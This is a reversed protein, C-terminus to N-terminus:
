GWLSELTYDSGELCWFNGKIYRYDLNIVKLDQMQEESLVSDAADLNQKLREPNTSKPIAVTGRNVAWALMVQASSCGSEEAIKQIIENEFLKPENAVIRNAPRDASGLPSYATLIIGSQDCFNKLQEQQNFLHSEVQDVEPMVGTAKAIREIKSSSFNSVGIHRVLGKDRLKIMGEWTEELPTVKLSVLEDGVQPFNVHDAVVVPWHILYLDLYTLGLDKLTNECSPIIQESRHRNNWLKSTIFLKERATDGATFADAFAQGIEAENGYIHACDFHTYGIQISDRVARYVEGPKSKWTGLGLAPIQDGNKFQLFRM